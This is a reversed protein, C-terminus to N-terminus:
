GPLGGVSFSRAISGPFDDLSELFRLQDSALDDMSRNDIQEYNILFDVAAERGLSTIEDIESPSGGFGMRRLLHAGEDNTINAM